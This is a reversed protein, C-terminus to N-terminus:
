YFMQEAEVDEIIDEYLCIYNQHIVVNQHMHGFLWKTFKLKGMFDGLRIAVEDKVKENTIDAKIMKELIFLPPVHSLIFDFTFDNEQCNKEFKNWDSITPYEEKWWSINEKRMSKDISLGGGMVLYTKGNIRYTEGNQLMFINRGFQRVKGGWMEMYIYRSINNLISYNEHNGPLFVINFDKSELWGMWYADQKSNDWFGGFDGLIIVYDDYTLEKGIPFNKSSFRRFEAHTDGTFFIRSM